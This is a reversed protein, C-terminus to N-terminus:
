LFHSMNRVESSEVRVVAQTAADATAAGTVNSQACTPLAPLMPSSEGTAGAAKSGVYYNARHRVM